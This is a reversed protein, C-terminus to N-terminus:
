VKGRMPLVNESPPNLILEVTAALKKLADGKEKEYAHRDYVGEVGGIVHGLVRESIDPRVGAEAMLTKATRRLDHLVWPELKCLADIERKLPSFGAICGKGRGPFVYPNDKVPTQAQIIALVEDPLPLRGPCNKERPETPITWVGDKLDEWRMAAVKARRQATLLLVKVFAGSRGLSDLAPWLIQIEDDKLVRKRAREKPRSRRMGKVLPSSYTKTRTAYWNFLKSLTALMRDAMVPGNNDQVDDLLSTVDDRDIEIFPRNKWKPFIYKNFIREIEFASRLVGNEKDHVYRKIFGEAIAKFSEPPSPPVIVPFPELGQKIRKVGERAKTRAEELSLVDAPGVERWIQKGDPNRTVVTFTKKGNPTVRLCLGRTEPDPIFRRKRGPQVTAVIRAFGKLLSKPQM